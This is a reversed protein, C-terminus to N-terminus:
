RRGGECIALEVNPGGRTTSAVPLEELKWDDDGIVEENFRADDYFRAGDGGAHSSANATEVEEGKTPYVIDDMVSEDSAEEAIWEANGQGNNLFTQNAISSAQQKSCDAAFNEGYVLSPQQTVQSVKSPPFADTQGPSLAGTTDQMDVKYVRTRRYWCSVICAIFAFSCFVAVSCGILVGNSLQLSNGDTNENDDDDDDDNATDDTEDDNDVARDNAGTQLPQETSTLTPNSTPYLTLRLTSPYLSPHASPNATPLFSPSLTPDITPAPTPKLTPSSSPGLTPAITPNRTPNASPSPTPADTPEQTPVLARVIQMRDTGTLDAVKGGFLYIRHLHPIYVFAPRAVAYELTGIVAVAGTECDIRQIEARAISHDWGGIVLITNDAAHYIMVHGYVGVTFKGAIYAWAQSAINTLSVKEISDLPNWDFGGSVYLANDVTNVV